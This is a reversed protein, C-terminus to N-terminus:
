DSEGYDPSIAVGAQQEVGLAQYFAQFHHLKKNPSDESTSDQAYLLYLMWDKVAGSFVGDLPLAEEQSSVADPSQSFVVEAYVPTTTHVPPTVYFVTPNKADHVYNDLETAGPEIHWDANASDLAERTTKTIPLGPVGDADMNRIIDILRFGTSPITQRTGPVLQHNVTVANADPRVLVVQQLAANLMDIYDSDENRYPPEVDAYLRRVDRLIDSVLM